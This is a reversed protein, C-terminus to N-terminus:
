LQPRHWFLKIRVPYHDSGTRALRGVPGIAWDPGAYLHDIPLLPLPVAGGQWRAPFSFVAHTARRMPSLRADLQRMASGWPTLNFDGALVMSEAGARQVAVALSARRAARASAPDHRSLHVTALTTTGGWPLRVVTTYLGPGFPVGAYDHFRWRVRALPWRSFIAMSCRRRCVNAYPYVRRLAALHPAITGDTEQLLLVDAGSGALVAITRQPDTNAYGVNHTVVTMGLRPVIGPLVDVGPDGVVERGIIGCSVLLALVAVAVAFSWSQRGVLLSGVALLAAIPLLAVMADVAPLAPPLLAAVAVVAASGALGRTVIRRTM